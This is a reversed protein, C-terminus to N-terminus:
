PSSRTPRQQPSPLGNRPRPPSSRGPQPRRAGGAHGAPLPTRPRRAPLVAAPATPGPAVSLRKVPLCPPRLRGSFVRCLRDGHACLGRPLGPGAQSGRRPGAALQHHRRNNERKFASSVPQSVKGLFYCVQPKVLGRSVSLQANRRYWQCRSGTWLGPGCQSCCTVQPGKLFHLTRLEIGPSELLEGLHNLCDTQPAM